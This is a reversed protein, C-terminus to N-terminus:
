GTVRLLLSDLELRAAKALADSKASVFETRPFPARLRLLWLGAALGPAHKEFVSRAQRKLLNRTVARKAHRKPVVYGFWIGVASQRVDTVKDIPLEDVPQPCIPAPATSLETHLAQQARKGAPKVPVAPAGHVHHLAFHASRARSRSALLREFDAKQLLRNLPATVPPSMADVTATQLLPAPHLDRRSGSLVASPDVVAWQRSLLRCRGLLCRSAGRM